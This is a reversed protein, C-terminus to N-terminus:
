RNRGPARLLGRKLAELMRTSADEVEELDEDSIGSNDTLMQDRFVVLLGLTGAFVATWRRVEARGAETELFKRDARRPLEFGDPLAATGAGYDRLKEILECNDLIRRMREGKDALVAGKSRGPNPM